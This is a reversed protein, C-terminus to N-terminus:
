EQAGAGGAANHTELAAVLDDKVVAGNAGTGTVELGLEAARAALDDKGLKKLDIEEPEDPTWGDPEWGDQSVLQEVIAEPFRQGAVMEPTLDGHDVHANRIQGDPLTVTLDVGTGSAGHYRARKM